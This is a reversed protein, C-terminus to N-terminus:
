VKWQAFHSRVVRVLLLHKPAFRLSLTLTNAQDIRIIIWSLPDRLHLSENLFIFRKADPAKVFIAFLLCREVRAAQDYAFTFNM